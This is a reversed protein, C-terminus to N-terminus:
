VLQGPRTDALTRLIEIDQLWRSGIIVFSIIEIVVVFNIPLHLHFQDGKFTVQDNDIIQDRLKIYAEDYSTNHGILM